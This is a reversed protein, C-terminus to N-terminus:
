RVILFTRVFLQSLECLIDTDFTFLNVFEFLDYVVLFFLEM